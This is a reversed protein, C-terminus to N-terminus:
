TMCWNSFIMVNKSHYYPSSFLAKKQREPTVSLSQIVDLSGDFFMELLEDWTYGNVYTISLGSKWALLDMLDIGFGAPKGDAIFDFPPWDFENAVTIEPRSDIFAQEEPTYQRINGADEGQSTQSPQAPSPQPTQTHAPPIFFLSSGFCILLICFFQKIGHYM